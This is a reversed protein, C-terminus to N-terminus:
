NLNKAVSLAAKVWAPTADDEHMDNLSFTTSGASAPEQEEAFSVKNRVCIVSLKAEIDDVSYTDINDLVDKKDEDTLMYFKAIMAQKETREASLKFEKLTKLEEAASNATETLANFSNTLEAFKTQLDNFQAQLEVYEPIEELNYQIPEEASAPDETAAEETMTEENKPTNDEGSDGLIKLAYADIDELSFQSNAPVFEQVVPTLEGTSSLGEENYIFDLRVFGGGERDKLIAFKNGNEEEYIGYIYYQSADPCDNKMTSPFTKHIYDWLASWLTDGIEVAFETFVKKDGGQLMEKLESMMSYMRQEFGESFSFQVNSITSGEFCPENDEGLICLKSIIAENIIFIQPKGNADKAWKADLTKQDLEMSQNNGKDIVRQCEPYVGTWLYGETMLYEHETEGDDLFKQFWVKADLSVFGYPVTNDKIEFKGNSIDIVRNHEEFDGKTENYFGVIPCGPLSNAMGKAVEKTIISKNRNPKDGVYCVKIQCKSILPNVPEINIFEIPSDLKVSTHKM